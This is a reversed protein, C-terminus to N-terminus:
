RPRDVLGADVLQLTTAIFQQVDNLAQLAQKRRQDVERYRRSYSRGCSM